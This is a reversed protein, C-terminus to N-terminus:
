KIGHQQTLSLVQQWAACDDEQEEDLKEEQEEQEEPHGPRPGGVSPSSLSIFTWITM